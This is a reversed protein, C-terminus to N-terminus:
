GTRSWGTRVGLEIGRVMGALLHGEWSASSGSVCHGWSNDLGQLIAPCHLLVWDGDLPLGGPESALGPWQWGQTQRVASSPVM